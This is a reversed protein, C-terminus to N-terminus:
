RKVVPIWMEGFILGNRQGMEVTANPGGVYAFNKVKPLVQGFALGALKNNLEDATKEEGKVVLYDGKPFQIVRAEEPAAAETMVGAYHMMKNNVAENVAFIYDNTAIAKLSELRGDQSVAQWFDSKEKNIGAYDTYDSKLETGLGLVIFSDKQELTYDAM